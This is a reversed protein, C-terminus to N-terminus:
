AAKAASPKGGACTAFVAVEEINHFLERGIDMASMAPSRVKHLRPM